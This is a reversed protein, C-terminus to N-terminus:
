NVPLARDVVDANAERLQEVRVQGYVQATTRIDAHRMLDRQVTLPVEKADLWTKYSHRFTHFGLSFPLGIKQAAPKLIKPVLNNQYEPKEGNCNPNAFVWDDDRSYDSKGRWSRFAAAVREDLPLPKESHITKVKGVKGEVIARRIHLSRKEFDFDYWRLALLESCRLGLCMAGILLLKDVQAPVVALLQRFQEETIVDPQRQRKTSGEISFLSMPNVGYPLWEWLMAFKFLIGMLSHVHGQTRTSLPKGNKDKLERLWGRVDMARVDALPMSGWRPRIHCRINKEYGRRTSHTQPIEEAIYRDIVDGFTRRDALLVGPSDNFQDRIAKAARSAGAKTPYESLLGVRFRPRPPAGPTRDTFRIYWCLGEATKSKELSGAQYRRKRQM